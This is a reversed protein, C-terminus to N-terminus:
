RRLDKSIIHSNTLTLLNTMWSCGLDYHDEVVHQIVLKAYCSSIYNASEVAVVDKLRDLIKENVCLNQV